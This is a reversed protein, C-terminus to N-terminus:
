LEGHDRLSYYTGRGIVLSDLLPIGLVDGAQRLRRTVAYDEASPTPDGSPHNHAVVISAANALIAAKYVERPHVLSGVLTGRSVEECSLVTHRVDLHVCYFAERDLAAIGDFFSYAAESGRLHPAADYRGRGERM